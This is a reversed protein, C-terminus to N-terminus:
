DNLDAYKEEFADQVVTIYATHLYAAIGKTGNRDYNYPRIIIDANEIEAYDLAGVSDADLLTKKKGSIMIIKPDLHAYIPDDAYKVRVKLAYKTEDEPDRKRLERVNWGEDILQRATDEDFIVSFERKGDKNFESKAGSFNKFRLEANEVNIKNAM